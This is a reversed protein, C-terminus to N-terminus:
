IAAAIDSMTEKDVHYPGPKEFVPVDVPQWPLECGISLAVRLGSKLGDEHFGFGTWAGALWLGDRGNVREIDDLAELAELNFLPHTFEFEGFCHEPDPKLEPNLTVFVPKEAPLDQLKNMWYTLTVQDSLGKMVNWSAWAATREPMLTKDKHLYATNSVFKVPALISRQNEFGDGLIERSQDAHCALIVDDFLETKGNAHVEIGDSTRRIHTVRASTMIRSGLQSVVKEVYSRSGNKVTRWLPRHSHLLKHNNFFRLFTKAPYASMEAEPTSWIAAGMPLIYNKRFRENMGLRDLYAGLTLDNTIAESDADNKANENFRLIDILLKWFTPRFFNSKQAFIGAPNSSWEFGDPDSVAFSMDSETTEVQLAELFPMFNPYNLPNCVIFGVDVSLDSGTHSIDVTHAHGGVRESAEFVHVDHYPSLAWAAGLGSIGSGVVAIKRSESQM